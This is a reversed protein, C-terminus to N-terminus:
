ARLRRRMRERFEAWEPIHLLAAAAFFLGAALPIALALRLPSPLSVEGTAWWGLRAGAVATLSAALLRVLRSALGPAGPPLGLKPGLGRFLFFLNLWATLATALTLGEVDLDFGRVLVVNLAMNVLLMWVSIRVPTIRDGFAIYTRGLLGGAGAPILALALMSLARAVRAVGDARYNGHEFLVASIPHALALLGAAAPLALFLIAFQARDHLRRAEAREGLHGHAQLRPFVSSIAATAILALPFQQVRNAYYLATPGGDRLLGEAMLGDVMVNVQYVAAGFALPLAGRIVHSASPGSDAATAPEPRAGGLFGRAFLPPVHLLLQVGGAALVGWALIRAMDWQRELVVERTGRASEAWGFAYGIWLLAGIWALNMVAPALSPVLYHGRVQLAGGALAALCVLLVYPMLRVALDRVPAPDTGLWAWGTLPMADPMWAVLVMSGFSVLLLALAAFRMTSWFLRRGRADGGEGDAETLATQLSTSLAGEGFLRRFLNPVRWATFFADSVASGDGFVSAMVMERVFGLLRSLLTLGSVLATRGVLGRHRRLIEAEEGPAGREHSQVM